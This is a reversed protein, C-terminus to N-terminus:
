EGLIEFMAKQMNSKYYEWNYQEATRRAAVGMQPIEHRINNIFDIAKIISETSIDDLIWGNENERIVDNVGCNQSCLLPLGSAMAELGVLSMGESLSPLVFIDAKIYIEPLRDHQVRGLFKINHKNKYKEYLEQINQYGGAITLNVMGQRKSVAELLYNIGKRYSCQGVFLLELPGECINKRRKSFQFLKADVGYPVIYIKESTVGSFELSKKVFRSPVLFYDTKRIEDILRKMEYQNLLIEKESFHNWDDECKIVSEYIYKTYARNAISTDMIRVIGKGELGTFCALSNTDYMVVADVKRKVAHSSVKRGFTDFNFNQVSNTLRKFSTHRLTLLILGRLECFQKVKEDVIFSMKRIKQLKFKGKTIKEIWYTINRKKYYVTTIYEDLMGAELIAETLRYSHQKEPHAVIIRKKMMKM